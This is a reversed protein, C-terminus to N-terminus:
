DADMEAHTVEGTAGDIRLKIHHGWEDVGEVKWDGGLTDDIDTITLIGRDYAIMRAHDEPLGPRSFPWTFAMATAPVLFLAGFVASRLLTRM